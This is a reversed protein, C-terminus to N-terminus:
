EDLWRLYDARDAARVAEMSTTSGAGPLMRGERPYEAWMIVDRYDQKAMAVLEDLKLRDATALRVIALRVRLISGEHRAEGYRALAHLANERETPLPWLAAVKRQLVSETVLRGAILDAM